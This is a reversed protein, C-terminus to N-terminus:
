PHYFPTFSVQMGFKLWIPCNKYFNDMKIPKQSTPQNPQNADDSKLFIEQPFTFPHWKLVCLFDLQYRLANM